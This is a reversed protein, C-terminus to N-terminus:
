NVPSSPARSTVMCSVSNGMLVVYLVAARQTTQVVASVFLGGRHAPHLKCLIPQKRDILGAVTVQMWM